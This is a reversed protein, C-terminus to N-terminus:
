RGRRATRQRAPKKQKDNMLAALRQYEARLFAIEAAREDRNRPGFYEEHPRGCKPCRVWILGPKFALCYTPKRPFVHARM